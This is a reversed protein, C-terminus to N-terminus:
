KFQKILLRLYKLGPLMSFFYLISYKKFYNRAVKPEFNMFIITGIKTRLKQNNNIEEDINHITNKTYFEYAVIGAYISQQEIKMKSISDKHIRLKYLPLQLNAIKFEMAIKTWLRFDQAYPFTEDYKLLDGVLLKNIMVSGHAICNRNKFTSCIEENTYKTKNIEIKNGCTDIKITNTGVLAYEKNEELFRIQKEFRDPLSIDDSDMRAIYKSQSLLIAKNLSKTLGINDQNVVKIRKDQYRYIIDLSRDTSGDNIIIFEFDHYTQYLISEISESLYKEDNYVSMVVSIM